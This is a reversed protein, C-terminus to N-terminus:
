RVFRQCLIGNLTRIKLKFSHFVKIIERRLNRVKKKINLIKKM